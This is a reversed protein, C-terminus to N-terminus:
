CGKWFEVAFRVFCETMDLLWTFVNCGFDFWNSKLHTVVHKFDVGFLIKVLRIFAFAIKDDM